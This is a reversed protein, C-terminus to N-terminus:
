VCCLAHSDLLFTCEQLMSFWECLSNFGWAPIGFGIGNFLAMMSASVGFKREAVTNLGRIAVVAGKAEGEDGHGHGGMACELSTV